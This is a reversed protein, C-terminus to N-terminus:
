FHQGGPFAGKSHTLMTINWNEKYILNWTLEMLQTPQINYLKTLNKNEIWLFTSKHISQTKHLLLRGNAIIMVNAILISLQNDRRM